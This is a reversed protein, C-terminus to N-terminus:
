RRGIRYVNEIIRVAERGEEADSLLASERNVADILNALQLAHLDYPVTSPDRSLHMEGVDYRESTGDRLTLQEIRNERLVV